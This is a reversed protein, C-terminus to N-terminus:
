GMVSAQEDAEILEVAPVEAISNIAATAAKGSIARIEEMESDIQLGAEKVLRVGKDWDSGASLTIILNLSQHMDPGTAKIKDQLRPSIKEM